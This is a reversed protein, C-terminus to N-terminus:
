GYKDEQEVELVEPQMDKLERMVVARAEEASTAKVNHYKYRNRGRVSAVTGLMVTVVWLDRAM